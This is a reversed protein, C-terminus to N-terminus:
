FAILSEIWLLMLLDSIAAQLYYLGTVLGVSVLLPPTYNILWLYLAKM